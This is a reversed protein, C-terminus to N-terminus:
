KHLHDTCRPIYFRSTEFKEGKVSFHEVQQPANSKAIKMVKTKSINLFLSALKCEVNLKNPLEFISSALLVSGDVYQLNCLYM